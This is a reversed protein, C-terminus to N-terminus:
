QNDQTQEKLSSVENKITENEHRLSYNEEKLKYTNKLYIDNAIFGFGFAVIATVLIAIIMNKRNERKSSDLKYRLLENSETNTKKPQNNNM